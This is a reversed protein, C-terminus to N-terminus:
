RGSAEPAGILRDHETALLARTASARARRKCAARKRANRRGAHRIECRAVRKCIKRAGRRQPYRRDCRAFRACRARKRASKRAACGGPSSGQTGGANVTGGGGAAIGGGASGTSGSGGGSGGGTGGTSDTARKLNVEACAIDSVNARDATTSSGPGTPDDPLASDAAMACFHIPGDAATADASLECDFSNRKATGPDSIRLHNPQSCAPSYSFTDSSDCRRDRRICTFTAAGGDSAFFPHSITDFYEIHVPIADGSATANGGNLTVSIQPPLLDIWTISTAWSDRAWYGYVYMDSRAVMTQRTGHRLGHRQVQRRGAPPAGEDSVVECFLEQDPALNEQHIFCLRTSWGNARWDFFWTNTTSNTSAPEGPHAIDVYGHAASACLGSAVIAVGAIVALIWVVRRYRCAALERQRLPAQNRLNRPSTPYSTM